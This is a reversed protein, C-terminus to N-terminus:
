AFAKISNQEVDAEISLEVQWDNGASQNGTALDIKNDAQWGGAEFATAGM